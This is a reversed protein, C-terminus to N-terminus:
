KCCRYYGLYIGLQRHQANTLQHANLFEAITPLGSKWHGM